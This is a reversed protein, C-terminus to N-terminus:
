VGFHENPYPNAFNAGQIFTRIMALSSASQDLPVFHGAGIVSLFTLGLSSQVYGAVSGDVLWQLRPASLFAQRGGWQL